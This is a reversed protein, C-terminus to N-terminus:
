NSYNWYTNQNMANLLHFQSVVKLYKYYFYFLQLTLGVLEPCPYERFDKGHHNHQYNRNPEANIHSDHLLVFHCFKGQCSNKNRYKTLIQRSEQEIVIFSDKLPWSNYARQQSATDFSISSRWEHVPSLCQWTDTIEFHKENSWSSSNIIKIYLKTYLFIYQEM